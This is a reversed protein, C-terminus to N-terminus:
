SFLQLEHLVEQRNHRVTRLEQQVSLQALENHQRMEEMLIAFQEQTYHPVIDERRHNNLNREIQQLNQREARLEQQRIHQAQERAHLTRLGSTLPRISQQTKAKKARADMTSTAALTLLSLAFLHLKKM